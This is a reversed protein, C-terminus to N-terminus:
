QIVTMTFKMTSPMLEKEDLLDAYNNMVETDRNFEGASVEHEPLPPLGNIEEASGRYDTHVIANRRLAPM